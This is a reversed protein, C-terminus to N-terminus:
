GRHDNGYKKVAESFEFLGGVRVEFGDSFRAVIIGNNKRILHAKAQTAYAISIEM